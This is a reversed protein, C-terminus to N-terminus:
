WFLYSKDIVDTEGLIVAVYAAVSILLLMHDVQKPLKNPVFKM